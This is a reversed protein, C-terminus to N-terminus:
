AGEPGGTTAAAPTPTVAAIIAGGLSTLAAVALGVEYGSDFSAVGAALAVGALQAIRSAANNIGSALGEDAQDVSSLVSATLPAVLVAFSLGLLTMPGIVGLLLSGERSVAMWVYALAAGAPGVILMTRAGIKDALGGFVGSLLGVGLTFPLFVLGADTSSLARRDVLDFPLLFFMVSVAGYIMLTAVNLGLFAHNAVLRPPTMPHKSRGEWFAYLALGVIGLGTVITLVTGMEAPADAAAQAGDPGIQSLAWALAGLASALIAAGIVDFRRHIRGDKPAFILLVGVTVVAIPPNIWFVSPWGFTETLWGGLVPGGATTLASAAAWIGIARNREARPYTAGILALSAPTVIAAAAGQVVRATILWAPSPAMACAASALGFLVCGLALMRAKGYADALAGGILTLSALALMYGNLVWQVSALDAGFDARLRPLAVPLATGDIFAMSSALVCAMLVMGRWPPAERGLERPCPEADVVGRSWQEVFSQTM